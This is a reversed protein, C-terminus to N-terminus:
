SVHVIPSVRQDRILNLSWVRQNRFRCCGREQPGFRPDLRWFSNATCCWGPGLDVGFTARANCLFRVIMPLSVYLVSSFVRHCPPWRQLLRIGMEPEFRSTSSGFPEDTSSRKKKAERGVFAIRRHGMAVLLQVATVTTGRHDVWTAAVHPADPDTELNAVVSPFGLRALEAFYEGWGGAEIFVAGRYRRQIDQPSPRQGEPVTEYPCDLRSLTDKIGTFLGMSELLITGSPRPSNFLSHVVCVPKGSLRQRYPLVRTGRGRGRKIWGERKLM